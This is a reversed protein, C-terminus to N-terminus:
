SLWKAAICMLSARDELSSEVDRQELWPGSLHTRDRNCGQIQPRVGNHEPTNTPVRCRRNGLSPIVLAVGRASLERIVRPVSPNQFRDFKFHGVSRLRTDALAAFGTNM